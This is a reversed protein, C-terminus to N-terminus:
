YSSNVQTNKYLKWLIVTSMNLQQASIPLEKRSVDHSILIMPIQNHEATYCRWRTPSTVVATTCAKCAQELAKKLRGPKLSARNECISDQRRFMVYIIQNYYDHIWSQGYFDTLPLCSGTTAPVACLTYLGCVSLRDLCSSNLYM